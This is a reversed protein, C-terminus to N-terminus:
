QDRFYQIQIVTSEFTEREVSTLSKRLINQYFNLTNTFDEILKNKSVRKQQIMHKAYKNCCFAQTLIYIQGCMDILEKVDRKFLPSDIHKQFQKKITTKISLDLNLMINEFQEQKIKVGDVFELTEENISTVGKITLDQSKVVKNIAEYM